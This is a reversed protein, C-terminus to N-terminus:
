QTCEISQASTLNDTEFPTGDVEVIIGQHHFVRAITLDPTHTM